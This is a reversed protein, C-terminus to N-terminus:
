TQGLDERVGTLERLFLDPRELKVAPPIGRVKWNSVRQIGNSEDYGLLRAVTAPGGLSDILQRDAEVANPKTDMRMM